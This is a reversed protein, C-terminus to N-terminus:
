ILESDGYDFDAASEVSLIGRMSRTVAKEPLFSGVRARAARHPGLEAGSLKWSTLNKRGAPASEGELVAFPKESVAVAVIRDGASSLSQLQVGMGKPMVKVQALPFVLLKGNSAAVAIEAEAAQSDKVYIPSLLADGENIATMVVKGAKKSVEFDAAPCVFGLGATNVLLYGGQPQLLFAHALKSGGLDALSSLPVGDGRGTPFAAASVNYARGSVDMMVVVQNARAEIIALAEDGPKWTLASLDVKHGTRARLWGHKSVILTVPDDTTTAVSATTVRAATEILTRRADGYKKRDAEIELLIQAKMKENDLLLGELFSAEEKLEAMEAELKIKELRALQRLRIELIDTAQEDSLGFAAMLASKPEEAHRIIRIVEDINLFATLRGELLHIRNRVQGLRHESRRTVTQFRFSIWERLIQVLDKQQPKGDLGVSVLNMPANLELSTHALLVQMVEDPTQRSSKPAIVLCVPHEGDSENSITDVVSLVLSKLALQDPTLTKKGAKIKPNTLEEIELMIKEAAAGPPLEFVSIQWQGRALPEVKWRARVRVSGRGTAYAKAIDEPASIIQGGGTFDPGPLISLVDELTAEPNRILHECALATETLNHSPIETALGVAIGSAGNLLEIPLRAPLVVPEKSMGDYNPIFDVTGMQLEGLLLESIPTLRAETNHVVFGNAVFAHTGDVTLDYVAERGADRVSEVEAYFYNREEVERLKAALSPYTQDLLPLANRIRKVARQAESPFRETAKPIAECDLVAVVAETGVTRPSELVSQKHSALYDKVHPLIDTRSPAGVHRFERPLKNHKATSLFGVTAAFQVITDQGLLSIRSVNRDPHVKSTIVSFHNLLLLKVDALLEPSASTAFVQHSQETGTKSVSGDCEFYARMFAAVEASSSRMIISPVRLKYSDFGVWGINLLFDFLWKSSHRFEQCPKTAQFGSLSAMTDRVTFNAQPFCEKFADVFRNFVEENSNSFCIENTTPRLCGDSVILGLLTALAQSMKKPLEFTRGKGIKPVFAELSAGDPAAASYDRRMCVRDGEALMDARKWDYELNETLVLFPENPTCKVAHGNVTRVEVLDHIGSYVWRVATGSGKSTEVEHDIVIATGPGAAEAARRAEQSVMQEIPLLGQKTSVSTGAVFCYRMAAAGDGDRSGFNGQGDILPYRLTFSQAMRVAADYVSADGHPHLKGLVEGVVAASKRHKATATLGMQDMAYLIRRQVPKQGDRVDPLARGLVVSMAYDLYARQAYVGLDM